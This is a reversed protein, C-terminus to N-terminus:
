RGGTFRAMWASTQDDAQRRMASRCVFPDPPVVGLRDLIARVQGELDVALDEYFIELPRLEHEAFFAQWARDSSELREHCDEIAARDYPVPAVGIKPEGVDWWLGSREARYLSIAQALRDRRRLFIWLPLRVRQLWGQPWDPSGHAACLATFHDFMLRLGYVGRPSASQQWQALLYEDLTPYRWSRGRLGETWHALDERPYGAVGTAHLATCLLTGGTRRDTAVFYCPRRGEPGAARLATVLAAAGREPTSTGLDRQRTRARRRRRHEEVCTRVFGRWADDFAALDYGKARERSAAGMRARLAESLVLRRLAAGIQAEDEFLFGNVGHSVLEPLCGRPQSVVPLGAALMELIAISLTEHHTETLHLGIDAAALFSPV